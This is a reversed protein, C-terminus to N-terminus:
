PDVRVSTHTPNAIAKPVRLAEGRLREAGQLYRGRTRRMLTRMGRSRRTGVLADTRPIPCGLNIPAVGVAIEELRLVYPAYLGQLVASDASVKFARLGTYMWEGRQRLGHFHFFMLPTGDELCYSQGMQHITTGAMNWPAVNLGGAPLVCAGEFKRAIDNLYGQNAYRGDDPYDWCWDLCAESWWTSAARGRDDNRFVVCGANFDGYQRLHKLDEPFRHSTLGISGGLRHLDGFLGDTPDVYFYVDSDLYAVYDGPSSHALVHRVLAPICTFIYEGKSRGSKAAALRPTVQELDSLGLLTVGDLELSAMYELCLDDLCLVRVEDQVGADRLSSIMALGRALYGSDFATCYHVGWM